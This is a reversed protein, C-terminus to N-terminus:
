GRRGGLAPLVAEAFHQMDDLWEEVRNGVFNMAALMTVGEERLLGIREILWRSVDVRQYVHVSWRLRALFREADLEDLSRAAIDDHHSRAFEEATAFPNPERYVADILRAVRSAIM